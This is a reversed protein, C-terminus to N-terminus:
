PSSCPVRQRVSLSSRVGKETATQLSNVANKTQQLTTVLSNISLHNIIPNVLWRVSVPIDRTLAIAELELDVGGDREEYRAISHVRWIYGNGTGPPLLRQGTRGYNEIEQVQVSDAIEYGRRSDVRVHHAQYQGEIAATVFLVKNQWLMWFRQDGSACGMVRSDVVVPKYFDKYAGYNEMVASLGEITAGPIFIGGIWHHILGNPVTQTGHSVAAAVPIEGRGVRQKRDTSEDTWLFSTKGDLRDKMRLDTTRLYANWANITQQQLDNAHAPASAAAFLAIALLANTTIISRSM